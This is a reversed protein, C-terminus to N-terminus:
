SVMETEHTLLGRAREELDSQQNQLKGQQVESLLVKMTRGMAPGPTYGMGMLIHGNIKLDSVKLRADSNEVRRIHQIMRQIARPLKAKRGSGRRDAKRLAILDNLAAPGVKRSFRRIARDSWDGTYHFMHHRVLFLIRERSNLPFDLRNLIRRAHRTSYIEHRHFTAEGGPGEVRTDVKGLDHFLASLRLEVDDAPAADCAYLSHYYIDHEHFRNQKLGRAATLEPLWVELIGAKRLMEFCQSPQETQVIRILLKRQLARSQPLELAHDTGIERIQRFIAPWPGPSKLPQNGTM